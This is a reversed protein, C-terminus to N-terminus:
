TREMFDTSRPELHESVSMMQLLVRHTVFCHVQALWRKISRRNSKLEKALFMSSGCSKNKGIVM